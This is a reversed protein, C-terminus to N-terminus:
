PNFIERHFWIRVEGQWRDNQRYVDSIQVSIETGNYKTAFSNHSNGSQQAVNIIGDILDELFERNVSLSTAKM